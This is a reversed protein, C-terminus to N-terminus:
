IVAVQDGEDRILVPARAAFRDNEVRLIDRGPRNRPDLNRLADRNPEVGGPNGAFLDPPRLQRHRIIKQELFTTSDCGDSEIPRLPAVAEVLLYNELELSQEM